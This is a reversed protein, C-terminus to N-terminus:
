ALDLVLRIAGIQELYSTGVLQPHFSLGMLLEDPHAAIVGGAGPVNNLVSVTTPLSFDLIEMSPLTLWVHSKLPAGALGETLTRQLEDDSQEFISRQGLKVYGTTIIVETELVKSIIPALRFHIACCQAVLDRDSLVGLHEKVARPIKAAASSNLYRTEISDVAPCALGLDRTRDCASMFSELYSM